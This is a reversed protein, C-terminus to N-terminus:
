LLSAKMFVVLNRVIDQIYRMKKQEKFRFKVRNLKLLNLKQKEKRRNKLTITTTSIIKNNPRQNFGKKLKKNLNLNKKNKM